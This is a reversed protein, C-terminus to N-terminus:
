CRPSLACSSLVSDRALTGSVGDVVLVALVVVLAATMSVGTRVRCRRGASRGTPSAASPRSRRDGRRALDLVGAGALRPRDVHGVHVRGAARATHLAGDSIGGAAIGFAVLWGALTGRRAAVLPTLAVVCLLVLDLLPYSLGVLSPLDAAVDVDRLVLWWWLLAISAIALAGDLVAEIGALRFSPRFFAVFRSSRSATSASIAPM